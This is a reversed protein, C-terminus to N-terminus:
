CASVDKMININFRSCYQELTMGVAAAKRCLNRRYEAVAEAHVAFRMTEAAAAQIAFNRSRKVIYQRKPHLTQNVKPDTSYVIPNM